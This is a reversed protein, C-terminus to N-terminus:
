CFHRKRQRKRRRHSIEKFVKVTRTKVDMSEEKPKLCKLLSNVIMTKEAEKLNKRAEENEFYKGFGIVANQRFHSDANEMDKQLKSLPELVDQHKRKM